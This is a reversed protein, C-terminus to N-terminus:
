METIEYVIQNLKLGMELWNVEHAKKLQGLLYVVNAFKETEHKMKHFCTSIKLRVM